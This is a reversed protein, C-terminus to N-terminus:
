AWPQQTLSAVVETNGIALDVIRGGVDNAGGARTALLRPNPPM